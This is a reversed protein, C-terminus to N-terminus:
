KFLSVTYPDILLIYSAIFDFLPPPSTDSTEQIKDKFGSIIFDQMYTCPLSCLMVTGLTQRHVVLFSSMMATASLYVILREKAVKTIEHIFKKM